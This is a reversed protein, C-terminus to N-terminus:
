PLSFSAPCDFCPWHEGLSQLSSILAHVSNCQVRHLLTYPECSSTKKEHKYPVNVTSFGSAGQRQSLLRLGPFPLMDPETYVVKGPSLCCHEPCPLGLLIFCPHYASSLLSNISVWGRPSFSTPIYRTNGGRHKM